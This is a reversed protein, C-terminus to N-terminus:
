KYQDIRSNEADRAARHAAAEAQCAAETRFYHSVVRFDGVM